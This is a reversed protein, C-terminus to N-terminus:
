VGCDKLARELESLAECMQSASFSCSAVGNTIIANDITKKIEEAAEIVKAIAQYLEDHDGNFLEPQVNLLAAIVRQSIM